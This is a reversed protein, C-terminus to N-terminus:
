GVMDNTINFFHKFICLLLLNEKNFCYTNVVFSDAHKLNESSLEPSGVVGVLKIYDGGPFLNVGIVAWTVLWDLRRIFYIAKVPAATCHM